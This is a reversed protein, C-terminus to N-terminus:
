LKENLQTEQKNLKNYYLIIFFINSSIGMLVKNAILGYFGWKKIFIASLVVNIVGFFVLLYSNLKAHGTFISFGNGLLHSISQFTFVLLLFNMLLITLNTYHHPFFAALIPPFLLFVLLSASTSYIAVLFMYRRAKQLLASKHNQSNHRAVDPAIVQSLISIPLLLFLIIKNVIEYVGIEYILNNRELILIDARTYLFYSVNSLGVILSYNLIKKLLIKNPKFEIKKQGFYLGLFLLFYFLNQSLIAGFFNYQRILFYTLFISVFGTTLTLLSLKKFQKLGLYFGDYLSTLPIFLILPFLSLAHVYNNRFLSQGHLIGLLIVAIAISIILLIGSSVIQNIKRQDNKNTSEAVFKTITTSVGFDSFLTLLSIIALLYSYIGFSHPELIKAALFFIFFTFGQKGLMQGARWSLNSAIKKHKYLLAFPSTM